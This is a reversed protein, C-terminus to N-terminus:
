PPTSDIPSNPSAAHPGKEPGEEKAISAATEPTITWYRLSDKTSAEGNYHKWLMKPNGHALLVSTLGPDAWANLHYTAFGHRLCNHPHVGIATDFLNTKEHMYQSESLPVWETPPNKELWSWVTPPFKDSSFRSGAKM